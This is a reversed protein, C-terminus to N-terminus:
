SLSMSSCCGAGPSHGTWKAVLARTALQWFQARGVAHAAEFQEEVRKM